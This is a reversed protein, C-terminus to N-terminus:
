AEEQLSFWQNKYEVSVPAFIARDRAKDITHKLKEPKNSILAFALVTCRQNPSSNKLWEAFDRRLGEPNSSLWQGVADEVWIIDGELDMQRTRYIEWWAEACTLAEWDVGNAVCVEKAHSLETVNNSICLAAFDNYKFFYRMRFTNLYESGKIKAMIGNPTRVVLGECDWLGALELETIEKQLGIPDSASMKMTRIPTIGIGLWYDESQYTNQYPIHGVRIALLVLDPKDYQLVIQNAPSVYEFLMHGSDPWLDLDSLNPNAAVIEMVPKEFPGLEFSNRTRWIVNGQYVSRIILTGDEKATLLASGDAIADTIQDNYKEWGWEGHNPFKPFGLSVAEMDENLLASRWVLESDDALPNAPDYDWKVKNRGATILTLGDRQSIRFDRAEAEELTWPFKVM